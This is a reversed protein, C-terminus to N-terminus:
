RSVIVMAPRILRGNLSCGKQVVQLVMNAEGESPQMAMANHFEPNFKEGVPDVEEMGYKALVDVFQKLTLEVGELLQGVDVDEGHQLGMEMSDKVPLLAEAFKDLAFKHAKEIDRASRKRLNDMEAQLLLLKNWSDDAKAQAAELESVAAEEAVVEVDGEVVDNLEPEVVQSDEVGIDEVKAEVRTEEDSM